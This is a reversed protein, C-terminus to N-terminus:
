MKQWNSVQPNIETEDYKTIIYVLTQWGVVMQYKISSSKGFLFLYSDWYPWSMNEWFNSLLSSKREKYSYVQNNHNGSLLKM